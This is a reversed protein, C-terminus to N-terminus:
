NANPAPTPATKQLGSVGDWAGSARLWLATGGAVAAPAVLLNVLPIGIGVATPVGFGLTLARRRGLTARTERFPLGNNEPTFDAFQVAMIWAGLIFSLPSAIVNLGPVFSLVLVALFRPLAWALKQAERMLSAGIEAAMGRNTGLAQGTLRAEIIGAIQGYFPSALASALLVGVWGVLLVLVAGLLFQLATILWGFWDVIWDPAGARLGELWDLLSPLTLALAGGYIVLTLALPVALRAPVGPTSLLKFGLSLARVGIDFQEPIRM